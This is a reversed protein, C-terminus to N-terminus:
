LRAEAPADAAAREHFDAPEEDDGTADARPHGTEATSICTRCPSYKVLRKSLVCKRWIHYQLM